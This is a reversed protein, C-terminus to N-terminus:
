PLLAAVAILCDPAAILALADTEAYSAVEAFYHGLPRGHMPEPRRHVELVRETLNLIWYEEIGARAYIGAKTTRDFSLTTDSVEM